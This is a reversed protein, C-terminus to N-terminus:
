EPDIKWQDLEGELRNIINRLGQLLYGFVDTDLQFAM